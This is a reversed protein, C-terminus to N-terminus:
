QKLEFVYGFETMESADVEGDRFWIFNNCLPQYASGLGDERHLDSVLVLVNLYPRETAVERELVRFCREVMGDGAYRDVYQTKDGLAHVDEWTYDMQVRRMFANLLAV